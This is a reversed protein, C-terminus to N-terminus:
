RKARLTVFANLCNVCSFILSGSGCPTLDAEHIFALSNTASLAKWRGERELNVDALKSLSFGGIEPLLLRAITHASGGSIGTAGAVALKLSEELEV